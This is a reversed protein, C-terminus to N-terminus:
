FANECARDDEVDDLVFGEYGAVVVDDCIKRYNGVGGLYPMFVRTKGPVNAGLYWSNCSPSTQVTGEAVQNVHEVWRDEADRDPEITRVGRDRLDAICDSIWEVHQEISVIMNSLVSPSGPGTVFFLNPFGASQLGLYTRPGASWKERLAVGRRGRIDIRDLAGTIADFGTALIVVDFDYEAETTRIGHATVSELPTKRLDVLTVDDRNFTEYYGSDLVQRKCGIPYDAPCLAEAVEPDDVIRRVAERYLECALENAEPDLRVDAWAYIVGRGKEDLVARLDEDNAELIRDEPVGEVLGGLGTNAGAPLGFMSLGAVSERQIRRIEGYHEKAYRDAEDVLELNMVPLTYVPTRQFVHLHAAEAAVVPIAQVGSSGTGVVAVRKGTFDIGEHPYRGTHALEGEFLDQGPIDPELPVSLCGTAMVCFTATIQEDADTEVIWAGSREDFTAARVRTGFTIDPRLDFRDAVHGLYELIEPQRSMVESWRWEQQLEDSWGYSYEISPVDCRAGPYRNWYWTGGVDGAADIARVRLGLQRCRQVLYLGAFGAGVVVVDVDTAADRDITM